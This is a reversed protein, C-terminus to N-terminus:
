LRLRMRVHAGRGNEEFWMDGGHDNVTQRSLALGLGLGNKKGETVFPQFVRQRVVPSLGPGTDDISVLVSDKERKAHIRVTGGKPMAEIANDILNAFVREMRGRELPVEIDEPVEIQIAVNQAEANARMAEGAAGVVERLNCVESGQVRGRSVNVLDELLRQINRSAQYINGALRKVKPPPLDSDVLMEAGGYIAALPNRLDHVISTSLRGITSLQEQRILDSRAKQVSEAMGNFTAALRGLEDRNRVDVRYDYNQKALETAATDLRRIPDLIREALFYTLCLGVLMALLYILITDRRLAALRRRASDVSRLIWLEGVPKGEIDQLATRLPSFDRDSPSIGRPLTSAVAQNGAIFHFDSGGTAEKLRQAVVSDVRYAAVLVNILGGAVYVPTVVTQYLQGSDFIFGQVQDPFKRSAARVAALDGKLGEGGLSAIVRGTPDTVFFLANEDSVRAWL